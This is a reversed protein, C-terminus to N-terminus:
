PGLRRVRDVITTGVPEVFGPVLTLRAVRQKGMEDVDRAAERPAAAFAAELQREWRAAVSGLEDWTYSGTGRFWALAGAAETLSVGGPGVKIRRTWGVSSGDALTVSIGTALHAHWTATLIEDWRWTVTADGENVRVMRVRVADGDRSVGEVGLRENEFVPYPAALRRVLGARAVYIQAHRDGSAVLVRGEGGMPVDHIRTTGVDALVSALIPDVGPGRRWEALVERGVAGIESRPAFAPDPAIPKARVVAAVPGIAHGGPGSRQACAVVAGDIRCLHVVRTISTRHLPSVAGEILEYSPELGQGEVRVGSADVDFTLPFWIRMSSTVLEADLPRLCEAASEGLEISPLWGQQVGFVLRWACASPQKLGILRVREIAGRGSAVFTREAWTVAGACADRECAVIEWDEERALAGLTPSVVPAAAELTFPEDLPDYDVAAREPALEPGRAESRPGCATVLLCAALFVHRGM